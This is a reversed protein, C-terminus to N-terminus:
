FREISKQDVYYQFTKFEGTTRFKTQGLSIVTRRNLVGNKPEVGSNLTRQLQINYKAILFREFLLLIAMCAFAKELFSDIITLM